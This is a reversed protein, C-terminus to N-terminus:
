PYYKHEGQTQPNTMKVVEQDRAFGGPGWIAYVDIFAGGSGDKM